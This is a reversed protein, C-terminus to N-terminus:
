VCKGKSKEPTWTFEGENNEICHYTGKANEHREMLDIDQNNTLKILLQYITRHKKYNSFINSFTVITNSFHDKNM